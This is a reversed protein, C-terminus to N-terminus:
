RLTRGVNIDANSFLAPVVLYSGDGDFLRGALALNRWGFITHQPVELDVPKLAEVDGFSKSLAKTHIVTKM